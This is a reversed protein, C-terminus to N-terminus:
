TWNKAIIYKILIYKYYPMCISRLYFKSSTWRQLKLIKLKLFLLVCKNNCSLYLCLHSDSDNWEKRYKLYYKAYTRESSIKNRKARTRLTFTSKIQVKCNIVVPNKYRDKYPSRPRYNQIEICTEQFALRAASSTLWVCSVFVNPM